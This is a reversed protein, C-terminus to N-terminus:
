TGNYIGVDFVIPSNNYVIDRHRLGDNVMVGQVKSRM